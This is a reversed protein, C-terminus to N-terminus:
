KKTFCFGLKLGLVPSIYNQHVWYDGYPPAPTIGKNTTYITTYKRSRFRYGLGGFVDFYVHRLFIIEYGLLLDTGFLTANENIRTFETSGKDGDGDFFRASDYHLVKYKLSAQIYYNEKRELFYKVNAKLGWGEYVRGPFEDHNAIFLHNGFHFSPEIRHYSAGVSFRPNFKVEVGINNENLLNLLVDTYLAFRLKFKLSDNQGFSFNSGNLVFILLLILQKKM